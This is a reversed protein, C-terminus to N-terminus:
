ELQQQVQRGTHSPHTQPSRCLWEPRAPWRCLLLSASAFAQLPDSSDGTNGAVSAAAAAAAAAEEITTSTAEPAISLPAPPLRRGVLGVRKGRVCPEILPVSAGLGFWEVCRSQRKDIYQTRRHAQISGLSLPESHFQSITIPTQDYRVFFALLFFLCTSYAIRRAKWPNEHHGIVSGVLGYLVWLWV